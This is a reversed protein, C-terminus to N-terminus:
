SSVGSCSWGSATISVFTSNTPITDTVTPTTASDPGLNTVTISFAINTGTAATAPGTKTLKLDAMTAAHSVGSQLLIAGTAVLVVVLPRFLRSSKMHWGGSVLLWRSSTPPQPTGDGLFR